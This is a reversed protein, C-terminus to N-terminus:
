GKRKERKGLSVSYNDPTGELKLNVYWHKQGRNKYQIADINTSDQIAKKKGFLKSWAAKTVIKLPVRFYYEMHSDLSQHGSIDMYGLTSNITMNPINIIGDVIELQNSLTDFRIHALNKDTFYDSLANLPKYNKLSGNVIEFDLYIDSENLQPIMNAHMHIKGTIAGSFQGILNESIIYEQGFNDFRYLMQELNVNKVQMDPYFFISDPDSGNFYGTIDFRGGASNFLLTDVFLFHDKQIRLDANIARIMHKHYHMQDFDFSFKLDTFPLEYINFVSDSDSIMGDDKSRSSYNSLQDFDVNQASIAIFNNAKRVSDDDGTYWTMDATLDTNGIFGSMGNLIVFENTLDFKGHIDKLQMDHVQFYASLQDFFVETEVLSDAFVFEANGYMKVDDIIEERYDPPVYNEGNYTFLDNLRVQDSTLAFDVDVSGQRNESLLLPYNDLIGRYIFESQDIRGYFEEVKLENDDVHVHASFNKLTHPYHQMKGYFNNIFFEGVPLNKSNFLKKATTRFALELRLNEIKEDVPKKSITDKSTLEKIDILSSYLFLNAEVTDLSQHIIAPLDDIDGRITLDSGGINMFLYDINAHNGDMTAKIDISDFKLHYDPLMFTLDEVLLESFYSKNFKELSKEPNKLDIIDAFNM